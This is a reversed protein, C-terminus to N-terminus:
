CGVIFPRVPAPTPTAHLCTLTRCCAWGNARATQSGSSLADAPLDIGYFRALRGNVYLAQTLLLQRFDFSKRAVVEDLLLGLSLQAFRFRSPETFRPYQQSDKVIEVPQDLEVVAEPFRSTQSARREAVM